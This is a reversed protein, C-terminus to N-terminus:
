ESQPLISGRRQYRENMRSESLDWGGGREILNRQRTGHRGKRQWCAGEGGRKEGRRVEGVADGNVKVVVAL